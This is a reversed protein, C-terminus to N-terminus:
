AYINGREKIKELVPQREENLRAYQKLVLMFFEKRKNENGDYIVKGKGVIQAQLVTSAQSLDILDVDQGVLLAIEQNIQFLDPSEFIKESLFAIDIDSDERMNGSAASGFLVIFYPSLKDALFSKIIDIKDQSLYM